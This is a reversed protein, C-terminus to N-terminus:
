VVSKRDTQGKGLKLKWIKAMRKFLDLLKFSHYEFLVLSDMKNPHRPCRRFVRSDTSQYSIRALENGEWEEKWVLLMIKNMNFKDPSFQDSLPITRPGDKGRSKKKLCFFVEPTKLNRTADWAIDSSYPSSPPICGTTEVLNKPSEAGKM